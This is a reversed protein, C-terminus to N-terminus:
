IYGRGLDGKKGNEYKHTQIDDYFEEFPKLQSIAFWSEPNIELCFNLDIYTLQM